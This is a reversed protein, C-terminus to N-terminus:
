KAEPACSQTPAQWPVTIHCCDYPMGQAADAGNFVCLLLSGTQGPLQAGLPVSFPATAPGSMPLGGLTGSPDSVVVQDFGAPRATYTVGLSPEGTAPDCFSQTRVQACADPPPPPCYRPDRECLPGGPPNRPWDGTLDTGGGPCGLVEVDGLHGAEARAPYQADYDIFFSAWPPSNAPRGFTLPQVQLGDVLAEGGPALALAILPVPSQRLTEGTTWLGGQCSGPITRGTADLGPGLALGGDANDGTGAFGVDFRVPVPQWRETPTQQDRPLLAYGFVGGLHPEAMDGYDFAERWPTRQALLMFGGGTFTIDSIEYPPVDVPLTVEWRADALYAGTQPDLGVSWVEPWDSRGVAVGYYLRGGQVAVGWVRREPAAFGWTAPDDTNFDARTRDMRGVPDFLVPTLGAVARAGQGHDFSDIVQGQENLRLIMGTELDSVHLVDFVPDWAINGLGPGANEVGDLRLDAFHTIQGTLGDVRWVSGPGGGPGFLGEMWEAGPQGQRQRDPVRDGDADPTVIPLGYASTAALYLSPAAPDTDLALGFIQGVDRALIRDYPRLDLEQANLGFGPPVLATLTAAAGEPDVFRFRLSLPDPRAARPPVIPLRQETGSFGSAVVTQSRFLIAVPRHAPPTNSAITAPPTSASGPLLWVGQAQLSGTTLVLGIVALLPATARGLAKRPRGVIKSRPEHYSGALRYHQM